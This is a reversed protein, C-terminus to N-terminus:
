RQDPYLDQRNDRVLTLAVQKMDDWHEDIWEDLDNCYHPAQWNSLGARYRAAIEDLHNREMVDATEEIYESNINEYYQWIGSRTMCCWDWFRTFLRLPEALQRQQGLSVVIKYLTFVDGTECIRDIYSKSYQVSM